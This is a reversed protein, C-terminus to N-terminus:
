IQIYNMFFIVYLHHYHLGRQVSFSLGNAQNPGHYPDQGLIVVKVHDLPTINLANFIQKSPPYITKLRNKNFCFDRLSDMYPSLLFPTLSRKWSEELQVKSLKDQQQETLQM